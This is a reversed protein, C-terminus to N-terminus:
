PLMLSFKFSLELLVVFGVVTVCTILYYGLNIICTSSDINMLITGGGILALWSSKAIM